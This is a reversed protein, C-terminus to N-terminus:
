ASAAAAATVQMFLDFEVATAAELGLMAVDDWRAM